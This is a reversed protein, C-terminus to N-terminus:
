ETAGTLRVDTGGDAPDSRRTQEGLPRIHHVRARFKVYEGEEAESVSILSRFEPAAFTSSYQAICLTLFFTYVREEVQSMNLPLDGYNDRLPDQWPINMNALLWCRINRLM